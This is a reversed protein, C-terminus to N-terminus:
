YTDTDGVLFVRTQNQDGQRWASWFGGRKDQNDSHITTHSGRMRRLQTRLRSLEPADRDVPPQPTSRTLAGPLTVIKACLGQAAKWLFDEYEGPVCLYREHFGEADRFLTAACILIGEGAGPGAMCTVVRGAGKRDLGERLFEEAQPVLDPDCFCVTRHISIAFGVNCARGRSFYIEGFPGREPYTCVYRVGRARALEAYRRQGPLAQEAIVPAPVSMRELVSLARDIQEEAGDGCVPLVVSLGPERVM